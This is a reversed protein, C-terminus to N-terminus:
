QTATKGKAAKGKPADALRAAIWGPRARNDLRVLEVRQGRRAVEDLVRALRDLKGEVDGHGLKVAPGADGLYLTMGTDDLHLEGAALEGPLRRAALADLVAVAELLKEKAEDPDESWTDRALGTIVPLDDPEGPGHRGFVEGQEDLMYLHQLEVLAVARREVVTVELAQPFRREVTADRIWPHTKLSAAAAEVDAQFLNEGEGIGLLRRVAGASRAAGHVEITAIALRPSTTLFRHAERGAVALAAITAVALVIKGALLGLGRARSIAIRATEARDVKRRNAVAGDDVCWGAIALFRGTSFGVAGRRGRAARGGGGGAWGQRWAVGAAVGGRRWAAVGGRRGPVARPRRRVGVGGDVWPRGGVPPGVAKGAAGGRATGYRPRM